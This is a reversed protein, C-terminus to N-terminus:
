REPRNRVSRSGSTFATSITAKRLPISADHSSSGEIGSVSTNLSYVPESARCNSRAAPVGQPGLEDHDGGAHDLAHPECAPPQEVAHRRPPVDGHEGGVTDVGPRQADEAGAA